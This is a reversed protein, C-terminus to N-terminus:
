PQKAVRIRITLPIVSGDKVGPPIRIRVSQGNVKLVKVCGQQAEQPTLRLEYETTISASRAGATSEASAQARTGMGALIDYFPNGTGSSRATPTRRTSPAPQGGRLKEDYQKRKEPDRLVTYAENALKLREEKEKDGPYLDPHNELVIKRFASEIEQQSANRPVGLIRYYDKDSM